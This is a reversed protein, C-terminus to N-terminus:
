EDGTEIIAFIDEEKLVILDEGDIKVNHGSQKGFLVLDLEKVTIPILTGNDTRRGEGVSMVIGQDPKEAASGPIILGSATKTEPEIRKVIVRDYLPIINM